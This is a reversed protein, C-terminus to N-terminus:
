RAVTWGEAAAVGVLFGIASLRDTLNVRREDETMQRVFSPENDQPVENVSTIQRTVMGDDHIAFTATFRTGDPIQTRANRTAIEAM